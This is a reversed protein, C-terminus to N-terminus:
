AAAVGAASSAADDSYRGGIEEGGDRGSEQREQQRGGVEQRGEQGAQREVVISAGAAAGCDRRRRHVAAADGEFSREDRRWLQVPQGVGVEARHLGTEHRRQGVGESTRHRRQQEQHGPQHGRDAQGGAGSRRLQSRLAGQARGAQAHDERAFPGAADHLRHGAVYRRSPGENPIIGPDQGRKAKLTGSLASGTLQTTSTDGDKYGGSQVVADVAAREDSSSWKEIAEADATKMGRYIVLQSPDSQAAHDLQSKVTPGLQVVQEITRPLPDPPAHNPNDWYSSGATITGDNQKTKEGEWYSLTSEDTRPPGSTPVNGGGGSSSSGEGNGSGGVTPVSDDGLGPTANGLCPNGSNHAWTELRGVFYTHTGEVEFNYVPVDAALSEGDVLDLQEGAADLLHDRGPVLEGAVVWGRELSQLPHDPTAMLTDREGDRRAVTLQVLARVRHTVTRLVPRWQLEGGLQDRTLVVTGALITEIARPGDETM